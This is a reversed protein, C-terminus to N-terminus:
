ERHYRVSIRLTHNSRADADHRTRFDGVFAFSHHLRSATGRSHLAFNPLVRQILFNIITLIMLTIIVNYILSLTTPLTSWFLLHNAMIFYTNIPILLLGLIVARLTVGANPNQNIQSDKTM